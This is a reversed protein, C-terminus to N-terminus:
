QRDVKRPSCRELKDDLRPIRKHNNKPKDYLRVESPEDIGIDCVVRGEGRLVKKKKEIIHVEGTVM